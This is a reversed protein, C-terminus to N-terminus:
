YVRFRSLAHEGTVTLCLLEYRGSGVMTRRAEETGLPRGNLFWLLEGEANAKPRIEFGEGVRRYVSVSEPRQISLVNKEPFPIPDEVIWPVPAPPADTRRIRALNFIKALLPEAARSGVFAQDGMGSLRGVWVGVAHKGNHGVTWADRRGSSTGTKRMFWPTSESTLNEFVSSPLRWSSLEYGLWACVEADLVPADVIPDDPFYRLNRRVGKRGLTAYANTLDLLNTEVAGLVFALGGQGVPDGRFRVGCAEAIGASKAAGVERCVQLAPLNLSTRLADGATVEGSFTRDFNEPNWGAFATQADSLVTDGDLRREMAATAYVFPKLASGPSRWAKAANVQGGSPDEFDVGGLMAILGGSEIEIVAVAMDSGVPLAPLRQRALEEIEEQLRSDLFSLGGEPRSSLAETVFYRASKGTLLGLELEIREAMLDCAVEPSIMGEELMRDLVKNRRKLAAEPHRDPRLRAPSQPIGALLAAEPLSLEKASKGFYRLSAAEAGQLNGGYPALNLYAELVEDKSLCVDAQWARAAESLKAELTRPRPDLMRCLQMDLTSAGSVVGGAFLNQLCARGVSVFDVGPHQEFREDEVAITAQRLWPSIDEIPVPLRWQEDVTLSRALPRGERDSLVTSEPLAELRELPFPNKAMHWPLVVGAAVGLIVIPFLVRKRRLAVWRGWDIM